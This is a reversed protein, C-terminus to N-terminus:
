KQSDNIVKTLLDNLFPVTLKAKIPKGNLFLTPTGEVGASTGMNMDNEIKANFENRSMCENFENRNLRVDVAYSELDKQELTGTFLKTHYEWFKGQKEACLAAQSAQYANKHYQLPFHKFVFRIKDRYQPLVMKLPSFASRCAPCEYDAFEILTVNANKNGWVPSDGIDISVATQSEYHEIYKQHVFAINEDLLSAKKISPYSLCSIIILIGTIKIHVLYTIISREKFRLLERTNNYLDRLINTVNKNLAKKTFICNLINMLYIGVCMICLTKIVFISIFAMVLSHLLALLSLVWIVAGHLQLYFSNYLLGSIILFILIGYFTMGFAASPIGFIKAYSSASAADCDIFSSVACFSPNELLGYNVKITHGVTYVSITFGILSTIICAILYKKKIHASEM